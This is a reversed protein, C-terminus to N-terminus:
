ASGAPLVGFQFPTAPSLATAILAKACATANVQLRDRNESHSQLVLALAGVLGMCANHADEGVLEKQIRQCIRAQAENAAESM